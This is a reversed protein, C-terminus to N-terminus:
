WAQPLHGLLSRGQQGTLEAAEGSVAEARGAALRRRNRTDRLASKGPQALTSGM